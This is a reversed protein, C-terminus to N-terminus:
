EMPILGQCTTPRKGIPEFDSLDYLHENGRRFQEAGQRAQDADAKTKYPGREPCTNDGNVIWWGDPRPELKLRPMDAYRM